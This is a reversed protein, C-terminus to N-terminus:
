KEYINLIKKIKFYLVVTSIAAFGIILFLLNPILDVPFNFIINNDLPQIAEEFFQESVWYATLIGIILSLFLFMLNYITYSKIFYNVSIGRIIIKLYKYRQDEISRILGIVLGIFIILVGIYTSFEALSVVRELFDFSAVFISSPDFISTVEKDNFVQKVQETGVSKNVDEAFILGYLKSFYVQQEEELNKADFQSIFIGTKRQLASSSSNDDLIPSSKENIQGIVKREILVDGPLILKITDGVRLDARINNDSLKQSYNNGLIVYKDTGVFASILETNSLESRISLDDILTEDLTSVSESINTDPNLGSSFAKQGMGIGQYSFDPLVGSAFSITIVKEIPLTKLSQQVSEESVKGLSDSIVLDYSNDINSRIQQILDRGIPFGHLAIFIITLFILVTVNRLQGMLGIALNLSPFSLGSKLLLRKILRKIFVINNVILFAIAILLLIGNILYMLSTEQWFTKLDFNQYVITNFLIILISTLNVLLNQLDPKFRVFLYSISLIFIQTNYFLLLNRIPIENIFGAFGYYFGVLTALLIIILLSNDKLNFIYSNKLVENRASDFYRSGSTTRFLLLLNLLFLIMINLGLAVFYSTIDFNIEVSGFLQQDLFFNGILNLFLGSLLIGTFGGFFSGILVNLNNVISNYVILDVKSFNLVRTLSDFRLEDYPKSTKLVIYILLLGILISVNVLLIVQALSLGEQGSLKSSLSQKLEEFVLDKDIKYLNNQIFETLSTKSYSISTKLLLSNYIRDTGLENEILERSVYVSGYSEQMLSPLPLNFGVLGNDDVIKKVKLNKNEIGAFSIKDGENINYKTSLSRSVIIEDKKLEQYLEINEFNKSYSNALVPDFYIIIIKESGREEFTDRQYYIPLYGEFERFVSGFIKSTESTSWLENKDRSYIIGNTLGIKNDIISASYKQFSDNVYVVSSTISTILIIIIILVLSRSKQSLTKQLALKYFIPRRIYVFLYLVAILAIGIGLYSGIDNV